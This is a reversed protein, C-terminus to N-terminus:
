PTPEKKDLIEAVTERDIWLLLGFREMGNDGIPQDTHVTLTVGRKHHYDISSTATDIQQLFVGGKAEANAIIESLKM